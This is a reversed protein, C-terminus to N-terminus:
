PMPTLREETPGKNKVEAPKKSMWLVKNVQSRFRPSVAALVPWGAAVLWKMNNRFAILHYNQLLKHGIWTWLFALALAMPLLLSGLPHIPGAYATTVPPESGYLIISESRYSRSVGHLGTDEWSEERRYGRVGNGLDKWGHEQEGRQQYQRQLAQFEQDIAKELRSYESQMQWIHEQWDPQTPFGTSGFLSNTFSDFDGRHAAIPGYCRHRAPRLGLPNLSRVGTGETRRPLAFSRDTLSCLSAM